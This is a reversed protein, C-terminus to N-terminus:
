IGGGARAETSAVAAAIAAHDLATVGERPSADLSALATRFANVERTRPAQALLARFAFVRESALAVGCRVVHEPVLLTALASRMAGVYHHMSKEMRWRGRIRVQDAGRAGSVFDHTAGGHRLSHPVIARPLGYSSACQAFLTRFTREPYPFVRALGPAATPQLIAAARSALTLLWEVERDTITVDQQAGTKAKPISLFGDPNDLGARWSRTPVYDRAQVRLLEGIRLYCHFALMVAVGM